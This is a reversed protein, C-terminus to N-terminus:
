QPLTNPLRRRDPVDYGIADIVRVPFPFGAAPPTGSIVLVSNDAQICEAQRRLVSTVGGTNVHYHLFVIKM